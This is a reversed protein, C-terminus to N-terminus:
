YIEITTKSKLPYPKIEWGENTYHKVRTNSKALLRRDFKDLFDILIGREKGAIKRSLRGGIQVCPINGAMGDARILIELDPFDVM